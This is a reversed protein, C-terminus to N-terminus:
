VRKARTGREMTRWNRSTTFLATVEATHEKTVVHHTCVILLFPRFSAIHIPDLM